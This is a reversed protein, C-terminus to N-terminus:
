RESGLEQSKLIEIFIKRYFIDVFFNLFNKLSADVYYFVTKYSIKITALPRKLVTRYIIPFNEGGARNSSLIEKRKDNARRTLVIPFDSFFAFLSFIKALPVKIKQSVRM